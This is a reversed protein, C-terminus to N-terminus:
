GGARIILDDYQIPTTAFPSGWISARGAAPETKEEYKMAWTEPEPDGQKWAKGEINWTEGTKRLRLRLITWSDSEWNYPVNAVMTEGKYLELAKRGPFVQLKYGGVGNLGVGFAPFRRGKATGHVRASVTRECNTTPGFLVGYTDLPAGPLELLKNGDEEKVVFAGDLVMMDKSDDPIKGLEAKDFKNEYLANAEAARCPESLLLSCVVVLFVSLRSLKVM